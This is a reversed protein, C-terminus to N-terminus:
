LDIRRVIKAALYGCSAGNELNIYRALAWHGPKGGAKGPDHIGHVVSRWSTTAHKKLWVQEVADGVLM